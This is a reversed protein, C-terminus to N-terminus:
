TQGLNSPKHSILLYPNQFKSSRAKLQLRGKRLVTDVGGYQDSVLKSALTKVAAKVEAPTQQPGPWLGSSAQRRQDCSDWMAWLGERKVYAFTDEDNLDLLPHRWTVDSRRKAAM